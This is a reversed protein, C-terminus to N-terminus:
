EETNANALGSLGNEIGPELKAQGARAGPGGGTQDEQDSESGMVGRGVVSAPSKNTFAQTHREEWKVNIADKQQERPSFGIQSNRFAQGGAFM